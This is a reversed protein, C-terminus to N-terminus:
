VLSDNCYSACLLTLWRNFDALSQLFFRCIYLQTVLKFSYRPLRNLRRPQLRMKTFAPARWGSDTQIPDAGSHRAQVTTISGVAAARDSSVAKYLQFRQTQGVRPRTICSLSVIRSIVLNWLAYIGITCRAPIPLSPAELGPAPATQGATQGSGREKRSPRALSTLHRLRSFEHNLPGRSFRELAALVSSLAGLARKIM